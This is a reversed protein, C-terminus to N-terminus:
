VAILREGKRASKGKVAAADLDSFVETFAVGDLRQCSKGQSTYEKM